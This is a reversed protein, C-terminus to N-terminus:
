QQRPDAKVPKEPRSTGCVRCTKVEPEFNVGCTPCNYFNDWAKELAFRAQRDKELQDLYNAEINEATEKIVKWAREKIKLNGATEALGAGQSLTHNASELIEGPSAAGAKTRALLRLGDAAIDLVKKGGDKIMELTGQSTLDSFKVEAGDESATLFISLLPVPQGSGTLMVTATLANSQGSVNLQTQNSTFETRLPPVLDSPKVGRWAASNDTAVIAAAAGVGVVGAVATLIDSGAPNQPHEAAQKAFNAQLQVFREQVDKRRKIIEGKRELVVPLDKPKYTQAFFKQDGADLLCYIAKQSDNLAALQEPNLQNLAQDDM